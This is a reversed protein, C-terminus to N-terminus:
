IFKLHYTHLTSKALYKKLSHLVRLQGITNANISMEWEDFNVQFFKGVPAQSGTAFILNNIQVNKNNIWSILTPTQESKCIDLRIIDEPNVGEITCQESSTIGM